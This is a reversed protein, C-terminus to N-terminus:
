ASVPKRWLQYVVVGVLLIAVGIGANRPAQVITTASIAWCALVFVITTIPHWPVRVMTDRESDEDARKARARFVLLSAGTLKWSNALKKRSVSCHVSANNRSPVM